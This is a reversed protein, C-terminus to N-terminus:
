FGRGEKRVRSERVGFVRERYGKSGAGLGTTAKM